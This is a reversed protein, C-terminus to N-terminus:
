RGTKVFSGKPVVITFFNQQSQPASSYFIAYGHAEVVAKAISLGLGSGQIQSSLANPGRVHREFIKEHFDDPVIEGYSTFTIRLDGVAHSIQIYVNSKPNCYKLANDLLILPVFQFSQYLSLFIEGKLEGLQLWVRKESARSEFLKVIRFLFGHLSCQSRRGFTISQPNTIIDALNLQETLLGISGYLNRLPQSSSHLKSSFDNGSSSSILAECNSMVLSLSSRIDHLFSVTEKTALDLERSLLHGVLQINGIITQANHHTICLRRLDVKLQTPAKKNRDEVILGNFTIQTGLWSTTYYSMTEPCVNHELPSASESTCAKHVCKLCRSPQKQTNGDYEQGSAIFPLPM